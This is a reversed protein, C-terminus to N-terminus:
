VKPSILELAKPQIEVIVPFLFEFAEGDTQVLNEDPSKVEIKRCKMSTVNRNRDNGGKIINYIYSTMGKKTKKKLLFLCLYGDNIKANRTVKVGGAYYDVNSVILSYGEYFRGDALVSYKPGSYTIIKYIGVIIHAMFSEIKNIWKKKKNLIKAVQADFGIGVWCLFYRSNFENSIKGLDVKKRQNELIVRCAKAPDLPIGMSLAYINGVGLPIIGVPLSVGSSCMVNIVVNLTGDGGAIVVTDYKEFNVRQVLNSYDFTENIGYTTLENNYSLMNTIDKILRNDSGKCAARNIVLIIRM